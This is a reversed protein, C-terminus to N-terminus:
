SGQIRMTIQIAVSVYDIPGQSMGVSVSFHCFVNMVQRSVGCVASTPKRKVGQYLITCFSGPIWSLVRIEWFIMRIRPGSEMEGCLKMLIREYRESINQVCDSVPM